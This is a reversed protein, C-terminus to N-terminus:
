RANRSLCEALCRCADVTTFIGTVRNEDVVLASGIHTKAMHAAVESVPTNESVSYTQLTCVDAVHLANKLDVSAALALNIDRDTLVSVVREKDIVPLHRIGKETMLSQADAISADIDITFPSPTMVSRMTLDTM